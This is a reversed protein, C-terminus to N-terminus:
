FLRFHTRLHFFHHYSQRFSWQFFYHFSQQFFTLLVALVTKSSTPPAQLRSLQILHNDIQNYVDKFM